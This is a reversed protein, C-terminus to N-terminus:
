VIVNKVPVLDRGDQVAMNGEVIYQVGGDDDRPNWDEMDRWEDANIVGNRRMIQLGEQRGKFDGRMQVSLNFKAYLDRQEEETLLGVEIAQEIRGAWPTMTYNGHALFMQESSSYTAVKDALGIMIPMVRVPRCVEEIQLRRTAVHEKEVGTLQQSLWKAGRDLVMPMGSSAAAFRKLWETMQTHQEPTLPGEVSYVGSPQVRDKHQQAHSSELALSLGLAERALRVTEMGMWGNWSPGRIHWIERPTLRQLGGEESTVDYSLSLDRHQTVSVRNPQLLILEIIRDGAGRSVYVYANGVLMVHFAISEWFSFATQGKMPELFLLRHLPHDTALDAGKGDQRRRMLRCRAAALDEGVVRCCAFMATVQLATSWTVSIGTKSEPGMLFSPLMDLTRAEKLGDALKGFLGGM